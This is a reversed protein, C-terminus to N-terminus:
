YWKMKFSVRSQKNINRILLTTREIKNPNDPSKCIYIKKGELDIESIIKNGNINWELIINDTNYSAEIINKLYPYSKLDEVLCGDIKTILKADCHFFYDIVNEICNVIQIAIMAENLGQATIKGCKNSNNLYNDFIKGDKNHILFKNYNFAYYELADEIYKLYQKNKGLCYNISYEELNNFIKYRYKIIWARKRKVDTYKYHCLPCEFFESNNIDFILDSGDRDCYYDHIWGSLWEYNDNFNM